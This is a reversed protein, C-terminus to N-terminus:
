SVELTKDDALIGSKQVIKIYKQFQEEGKKVLLKLIEPDTSDMEVRKELAPELVVSPIQVYKIVSGHVLGEQLNKLFYDNFVSNAHMYVDFLKGGWNAFARDPNVMTDLNQSRTLSSISLLEIREYTKNNGVFLNLAEIIGVMTPNNAWVGGDIFQHQKDRYSFEVMPFYTPAASTALAVDVLNLDNDLLKIQESKKQDENLNKYDAANVEIRNKFVVTNAETVSYSPICVLNKSDGLKKDTFIDSLCKKLGTNKYKSKFLIGPLIALPRKAFIKKANALYFDCISDLEIGNAIALAILGGTSTGCIMDFKDTMKCGFHDELNKLITASYLGKIGGGDICLIKFTKNNSM